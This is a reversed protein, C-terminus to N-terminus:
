AREDPTPAVTTVVAFGNGLVADLREGGPSSRIPACRSGRATRPGHSRHVFASRRLAPTESDVIKASLGPVRHLQPVVVRRILNGLEGGATMARGVGLALRIM